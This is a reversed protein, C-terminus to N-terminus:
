QFDPDIFEKLGEDSERYGVAEEPHPTCSPSTQAFYNITLTNGRSFSIHREHGDFEYSFDWRKTNPPAQADIMNSLTPLVREVLNEEPGITGALGHNEPLHHTQCGIFEFFGSKYDEARMKLIRTNM